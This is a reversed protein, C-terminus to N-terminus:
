VTDCCVILKGCFRTKDNTSQITVNRLGNSHRVYAFQTFFVRHVGLSCMLPASTYSWKNKSRPVLPLRTSPDLEPGKVGSSLAGIPGLASRSINSPSLIKQGQRVGFGPDDLGCTDSYWGLQLPEWWM